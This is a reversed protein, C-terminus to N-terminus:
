AASDPGAEEGRLEPAGVGPVPPWRGPLVLAAVEGPSDLGVVIPAAVPAGLETVEALMDDLPTVLDLM